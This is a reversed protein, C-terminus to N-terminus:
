ARVGLFLFLLTLATLPLYESLLQSATRQSRPRLLSVLLSLHALGLLGLAIWLNLLLHHDLAPGHLSADVPLHWFSNDASPMSQNYYPSAASSALSQAASRRM